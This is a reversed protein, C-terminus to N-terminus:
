AKIHDTTSYYKKFGAQEECLISMKDLYSNLRNNSITTFLKGFCSLLTIGLYNDPSAPDGKCPIQNQQYIHM